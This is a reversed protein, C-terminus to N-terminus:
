GEALEGERVRVSERSCWRRTEPDIDATALTHVRGALWRGAAHMTNLQFPTVQDCREVERHSPGTHLCWPHHPRVHARRPAPPVRAARARGLAVGRASAARGHLPQVAAAAGHVHRVRGGCVQAGLWGGGV